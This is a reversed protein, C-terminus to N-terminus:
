DPMAVIAIDDTLNSYNYVLGDNFTINKELNLNENREFTWIVRIKDPWTYVGIPVKKIYKKAQEMTIGPKIGNTNVKNSPYSNIHLVGVINKFFQKINKM